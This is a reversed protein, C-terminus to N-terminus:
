QADVTEDADQASADADVADQAKKIEDDLDANGGELLARVENALTDTAVGGGRSVLGNKYDQYFLALDEMEIYVKNDAGTFSPIRAQSTKGPKVYNYMMQPAIVKPEGMSNEVGDQALLANIIQAAKYPTVATM